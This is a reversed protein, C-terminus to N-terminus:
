VADPTKCVRIHEDYRRQLALCREYLEHNLQNSANGKEIQETLMRQLNQLEAKMSDAYKIASESLRIERDVDDGKEKNKERFATMASNFLWVMAGGAASAVGVDVKSIDEM